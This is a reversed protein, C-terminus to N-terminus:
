VFKNGSFEPLMLDEDKDTPDDIEMSLDKDKFEDWDADEIALELYKHLSENLVQMFLEMNKIIVFNVAESPKKQSLAQLFRYIRELVEDRNPREKWYAVNLYDPM